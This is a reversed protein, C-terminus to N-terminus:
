WIAAMVLMKGELVFGFGAMRHGLMLPLVQSKIQLSLSSSSQRQHRGGSDCVFWTGSTAAVRRAAGM